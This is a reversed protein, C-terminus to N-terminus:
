RGEMAPATQTDSVPDQKQECVSAEDELYHSRPLMAICAETLHPKQLDPETEIKLLYPLSGWWTTFKFDRHKVSSSSAHIAVGKDDGGPLNTLKLKHPKDTKM